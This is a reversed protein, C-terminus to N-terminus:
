VDANHIGQAIARAMERRYSLAIKWDHPSDGFFPEAIVAPCHTLKLFADGRGAVPTKVGRSRLPIAADFEDHIASAIREGNRSGPYHLWEHGTANGTAANFHLEIASTAGRERLHAALWRMASYYSSGVYASVIFSDRGLDKLAEQIYTAQLLNFDWESVGSVSVAGNDGPRSHGVGIATLSDSM